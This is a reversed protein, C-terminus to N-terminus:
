KEGRLINEADSLAERGHFGYDVWWDGKYDTLSGNHECVGERDYNDRNAYFELAENLKVAVARLKEFSARDVIEVANRGDDIPATGDLQPVLAQLQDALNM